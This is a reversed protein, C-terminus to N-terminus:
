VPAAPTLVIKAPPLNQLASIKLDHRLKNILGLKSATTAPLLAQSALNSNASNTQLASKPPAKTFASVPLVFTMCLATLLLRSKFIM